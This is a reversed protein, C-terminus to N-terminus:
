HKRLTESPRQVDLPRENLASRLPLTSATSRLPLSAKCAACCAPGAATLDDLAELATDVDEQTNYFGFSFRITGEPYTGLTKHASPACHLGVRTLIGYREELLASAEAQDMSLTQISVVGTRNETDKKGIIRIRKKEELKQLGKLFQETLLLEHRRIRDTGTEKLFLLSEHLGAIGPLNMTGAEYRDPMFSPTEETHSLSGTGGCILPAVQRIMDEKLLFGGTGQPGLLGKHGTFALADISCEEMDVPFVGATQASDVIFALGHKRCFAGAEKIPMMTGCVNSAHTLVLAKTNEELFAEMGATQLSGDGGCPIRSFRVGAAQLQVLPRMVANHEMSSVLVHDGPRLFGRLIVNLSETVNKTFVVNKLDQGHFLECLLQRTDFVMEEASYADMYCGRNINSGIRTMYEYVADSVRRPKPFSTCANDLYIKRM